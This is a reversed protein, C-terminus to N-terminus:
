GEIRAKVKQWDKRELFSGPINEEMELYMAWPVTFGLIDPDVHPRASIDTIGIVAKGEAGKVQGDPGLQYPILCVGQCGASFRVVVNDNSPRGYNAMVVLASLQDPNAYFIVLVPNERAADVASLPKMVVYTWPIDTTPLDKMVSRALEPTKKYGEGERGLPGGGTSLFYEFGPSRDYANGFGLGSVGGTCGVTKRDFVVTRGKAAETVLSMVCGRKGEEFSAAGQPKDNTFIVAIPEYRLKLERALRSDM